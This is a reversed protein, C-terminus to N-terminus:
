EEKHFLQSSDFVEVLMEKGDDSYVKFATTIREMAEALKEVSDATAFVRSVVQMLTGAAAASVEEGPEHTNVVDLVEPMARIVELGKISGIKGPRVSFTINCGFSKFNPNLLGELDSSGMSGTLAYTILLEMPNVGSIKKIIKYDLSGTLRYGMEYFVCQGNIVFSQIFLIGNKFDKSKFMKKVKGDLSSQYARLHKSPFIYASPVPLISEGQSTTYRDAMAALHLEGDKAVYYITVENESMYEEAIIRGSASFALAKKCGDILENENRCIYIGRSGSNDVPKVLVPFRIAKLDNSTIPNHIPYEKVVPVDHVRCLRKFVAKNTAIDLQESGAYCPLSAAECIERYFTLISDAFGTIVGDIHEKKILNVVNNIDSVSIDFSKDAISKGPSDMLYDTVVVNVGLAKAERIIECSLGGGGLVLLRKDKVNCM